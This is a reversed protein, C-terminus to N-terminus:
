VDNQVEKFAEEAETFTEKFYNEAVDGAKCALVFIGLKMLLKTVGKSGALGTRMLAIVAATAGLSIVTGAIFKATNMPTMKAKLQELEKNLDMFIDAERRKTMFM